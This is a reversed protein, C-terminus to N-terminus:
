QQAGPPRRAAPLPASRLDEKHFIHFGGCRVLLPLESPELFRSAFQPHTGVLYDYEASVVVGPRTGLALPDFPVRLLMDTDLFAIYEEPPKAQELWFMVSAPKNYSPYGTEDILPHGFRMNHHVFTPGADIGRYTALQEESCALLRTIPGPQRSEHHSHFLAVAQWTLAHNCEASFVTHVSAASPM